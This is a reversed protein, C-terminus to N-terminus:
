SGELGSTSITACANKTRKNVLTTAGYTSNNGEAGVAVVLVFDSKHALSSIFHCHPSKLWSHNWVLTCQRLGNEKLHFM